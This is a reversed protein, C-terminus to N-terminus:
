ASIKFWVQIKEPQEQVGTYKLDQLRRLYGM